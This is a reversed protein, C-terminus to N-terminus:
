RVNADSWVGNKLAPRAAPLAKPPPPDRRDDGEEVNEQWGHHCSRQGGDLKGLSFTILTDGGIARHDDGFAPKRVFDYTSTHLARANVGNCRNTLKGDDWRIPDRRM